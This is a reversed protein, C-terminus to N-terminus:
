SREYVHVGDDRVYVLRPVSSGPALVLEAPSGPDAESFPTPLGEVQAVAGTASVRTTGVLQVDEDDEGIGVLFLHLVDDAGAVVQLGVHAPAGSTTTVPLRKSVGSRPLRVGLGRSGVSVSFPTGSATRFLKTRRVSGDSPDVVVSTGDDVFGYLMRGDDFTPSFAGGGEVPIEDLRGGRLRLLFTGDPTHRAAYLTGDDLVHPLQWQFYLGGVLLRKPVEVAGLYGGDADYHAIRAKAGDLFWWSGDPAPAGYEPGIDLTGSDGGPSTGLLEEGPGYGIVFRETWAAPMAAAAAPVVLADVDLDREGSPTGTPSPAAPSSPVPTRTTPASVPGDSGSCAALSVVLACAVVGARIM